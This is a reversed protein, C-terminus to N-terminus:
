DILKMVDDKSITVLSADGVFPPKIRVLKEIFQLGLNNQGAKRLFPRYLHIREKYGKMRYLPRNSEGIAMVPTDGCRQVTLFGTLDPTKKSWGASYKGELIKLDYLVRLIDAHITGDSAWELYLNGEGDIVGRVDPGFGELTGPNKLVAWNRTEYIIMSKEM